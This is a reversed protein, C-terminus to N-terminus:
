GQWEKVVIKVSNEAMPIISLSTDLMKDNHKCFTMRSVTLANDELELIFMPRDDDALIEIRNSSFHVISNSGDVNELGKTFTCHDHSKLRM